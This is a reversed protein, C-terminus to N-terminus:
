VLWFLGAVVVLYTRFEPQCGDDFSGFSTTGFSTTGFSTIGRALLAGFLGAACLATAIVAVVWRSMRMIADCSSMLSTAPRRPPV